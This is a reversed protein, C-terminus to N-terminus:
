EAVLLRDCPMESCDDPLRIKRVVNLPDYEENLKADPTDETDIVIGEENNHPAKMYVLQAM